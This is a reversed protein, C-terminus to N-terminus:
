EEKKRKSGPKPGRKKKRGPKKKYSYKKKEKVVVDVEATANDTDSPVDDVYSEAQKIAAYLSSDVDEFLLEVESLDKYPNETNVNIAEITKPTKNENTILSSIHAQIDINHFTKLTEALDSSWQAEVVGKDTQISMTEFECKSITILNKREFVRMSRTIEEGDSFVVHGPEVSILVDDSDKLKIFFELKVNSINTIKNKVM